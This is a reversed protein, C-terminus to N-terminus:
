VRQKLNKNWVRAAAYGAIAGSIFGFGLITADLGVNNPLLGTLVVAVYYATFGVVATSITMAATLRISNADSGSKARFALATGDVMLGFFLALVLDLPFFSIKVVSILLGAVLGTYTAGGKGIILYSLALLFAEIGILFDSTPSPIFGQTVLIVVGFLSALAIKRNRSYGM